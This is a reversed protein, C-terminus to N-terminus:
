TFGIFAKILGIQSEIQNEVPHIKVLSLSGDARDLRFSLFFEVTIECINLM